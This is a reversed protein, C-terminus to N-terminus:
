NEEDKTDESQEQEINNIHEEIDSTQVIKNPDIIFIIENDQHLVKTIFKNKDNVLIDPSDHINNDAEVIKIIADVKYAVNYDDQKAIIYKTDDTDSIEDMGLKQRFSVVSVMEGRINIYGLFDEPMEKIELPKIFQEIISVFGIEIGMLIDGISFILYKNSDM